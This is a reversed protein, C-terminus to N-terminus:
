EELSSNEIFHSIDCRDIVSYKYLDDDIAMAKHFYGSWGKIRGPTHSCARSRATFDSQTITWGKSPTRSYARSRTGFDSQTTAAEESYARHWAPDM